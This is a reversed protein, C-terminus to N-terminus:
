APLLQNMRRVVAAKRDMIWRQEPEKRDVAFRKGLDAAVAKLLDLGYGAVAQDHTNARRVNNSALVEWADKSGPRKTVCKPRRYTTTTKM